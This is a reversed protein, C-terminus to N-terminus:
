LPWRYPETQVGARQRALALSPNAGVLFTCLDDRWVDSVDAVDDGRVGNRYISYMPLDTRVDADPASKRPEVQGAEVVEIVPCAKQNRRCFIMFDLAQARPLAVLGVQVYGPCQNRTLVALGKRAEDRFQRPSTYLQVAPGDNNRVLKAQATM